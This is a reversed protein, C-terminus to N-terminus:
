LLLERGRQKSMQLVRLKGLEELVIYGSPVEEQSHEFSGQATQSPGAQFLVLASAQASWSRIPGECGILV